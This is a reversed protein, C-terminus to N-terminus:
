KSIINGSLFPKNDVTMEYKYKGEELPPIDITFASSISCNGSQRWFALDKSKDNLDSVTRKFPDSEDIIRDEGKLLAPAAVAAVAGLGLRKLFESRKMDKCTLV